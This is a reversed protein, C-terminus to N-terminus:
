TGTVVWNVRINTDQLDGANVDRVHVRFGTNSLDKTSIVLNGQDVDGQSVVVTNVSFGPSIPIWGLSDWGIYTVTSGGMVKGGAPGAPGQIGQPGQPGQAGTAGTAGPPGTAGTNGPIGQPGQSGTDGKPGQPGAVGQPGQSGTAGTAGPIGQPGQPGAPGQPGMPGATGGVTRWTTGDWYKLASM